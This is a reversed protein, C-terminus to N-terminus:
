AAAAFAALADLVLGWGKVFRPATQDFRDTPMAGARHTVEVRTGGDIPVFRVEVETAHERDSGLYWALRLRSPPEWSLVRGYEIERGATTREFFRGGESGEIRLVADAERAVRHGPPWWIGVHETFARFAREPPVAVDIQKDIM